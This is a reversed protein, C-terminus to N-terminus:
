MSNKIRTYCIKNRKPNYMNFITKLTVTIAATAVIVIFERQDWEKMGTDMM